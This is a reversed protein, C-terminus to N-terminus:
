MMKPTERYLQEYAEQMKSISFHQRAYCYAMDGLASKNYNEINEFLKLFDKAQNGDVALPWDDPLTETLGACRNIITPTHAMSAEISMLALGEHVSPMFLYDFSSLYSSLRYVKNYLKVNPLQGLETKVKDQLSGSGIVHCCFRDTMALRKFVEIMVDVGKQPELRGAFLINLKGSEIDEFPQQETPSVGNFILAPPLVGYEQLYCQQVSRSIAVNCGHRIYFPEVMRGVKKWSNWLQTNHITRMYEPRVRFFLWAVKRFLWLSLDPIETHSHIIAPRLKAYFFSFWFGFFLIGIKSSKMPSCHFRIGETRLEQRVQQAFRSDSHYVEFLHYEFESSKSKAINFAVREAGGIDFSSVIHFVRKKM